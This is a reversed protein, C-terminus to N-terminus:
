CPIIDHYGITFLILWDYLHNRIITIINSSFEIKHNWLSHMYLFLNKSIIRTQAFFRRSFFDIEPVKDFTFGFNRGPPFFLKKPSKSRWIKNKRLGDFYFDSYLLVKM